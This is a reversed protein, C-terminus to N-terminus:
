YKYKKPQSIFSHVLTSKQSVLMSFLLKLKLQCVHEPHL